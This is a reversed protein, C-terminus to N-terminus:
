SYPSRSPRASRQNPPRSMVSLVVPVAAPSTLTRLPVVAVGVTTISLVVPSPVMPKVIAATRRNIGGPVRSAAGRARSEGHVVGRRREDDARRRWRHRGPGAVKVTVYLLKLAMVSAGASTVTSVSLPSGATDVILTRGPAAFERM